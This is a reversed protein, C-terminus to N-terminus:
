INLKRAKRKGRFDDIRWTFSPAVKLSLYEAFSTFENRYRWFDVFLINILRKLRSVGLERNVHQITSGSHLDGHSIVGVISSLFTVSSPPWDPTYKLRPNADSLEVAADLTLAYGVTLPARGILRFLRESAIAKGSCPKKHNWPLLSLITPGSSNRLLFLSVLIEFNELSPIRADDELIIAGKGLNLVLQYAHLHSIACGIAGDPLEHGYVARQGVRDVVRKDNQASYM